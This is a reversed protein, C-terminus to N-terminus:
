FFYSVEKRRTKLVKEVKANKATKIIIVNNREILENATYVGNKDWNIKGKETTQIYYPGPSAMIPKRGWHLQLEGIDTQKVYLKRFQHSKMKNVNM